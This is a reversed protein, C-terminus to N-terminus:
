MGPYCSFTGQLSGGDLSGGDPGLRLVDYVYHAPNANLSTDPAGGELPDRAVCWVDGESIRAGTLRNFDPPGLTGVLSIGTTGVSRLATMVNGIDTPGVSYTSASSQNILEAMGAGVLSGELVSPRGAAVLSYVTFYTADYYNESGLASTFGSGFYSLFHTEYDALAQNNPASAFDIGAVRERKSDGGPVGPGVVSPLWQLLYPSGANFPGLLYFPTPPNPNSSTPTELTAVVSYFEDSTFFVVVDPRFAALQEVVATVDIDSLAYGDLTSESIEVACYNTGGDCDSGESAMTSRGGNWTMVAEAASALDLTAVSNSTVMALKM